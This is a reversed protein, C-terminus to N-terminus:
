GGGPVRGRTKMKEPEFGSRRQGEGCVALAFRHGFSSRMTDVFKRQLVLVSHDSM